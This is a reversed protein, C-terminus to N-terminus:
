LKLAGAALGEVFLRSTFAFLLILPVSAIVYGAMLEGWVTYYQNRFSFIGLALPYLKDGQLTVLPWIIDNWTALVNFIAVVGLISQSLPMAIRTFITIENAGDIRAAEFLEEPLAAYFTRLIFIAGVQGGAIWPLILAWWTNLLHLNKVLLFQPILTLIGPIMILALVLFFLPQKGPFEFRAFVYASLGAIVLVGVCTISSYIISNLIYKAVVDWAQHYNDFNLPWTIGYPNVNFQNLDKVSIILTLIFPIFLALCVLALSLHRWWDGSRMFRQIRTPPTWPAATSRTPTTVAM